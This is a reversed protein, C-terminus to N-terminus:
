IGVARPEIRSYRQTVIKVTIEADYVLFIDGEVNLCFTHERHILWYRLGAM